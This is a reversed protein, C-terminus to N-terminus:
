QKVIKLGVDTIGELEEVRMAQEIEFKYLGPKRIMMGKRMLWRSEKIKGFGKGVWNGEPDALYCEVTDRTKSADPMTTTIFLFLNSFSYDTTNRVQFFIDYIAKPEALDAIITVPEDNKWKANPIREYKDIVTNNECSLFALALVLFVPYIACCKFGM